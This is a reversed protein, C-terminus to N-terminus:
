RQVDVLQIAFDATPGRRPAIPDAHALRVAGVPGFNPAANELHQTYQIWKGFFWPLLERAAVEAQSGIERAMGGEVCGAAIRPRHSDRVAAVRPSLTPLLRLIISQPRLISLSQRFPGNKADIGYLPSSPCVTVPTKHRWKKKLTGM